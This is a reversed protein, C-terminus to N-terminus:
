CPSPLRISKMTTGGPALGSTYDCRGFFWRRPCGERGHAASRAAIGNLRPRAQRTAHRGRRDLAPPPWPRRCARRNRRAPFSRSTSAPSDASPSTSAAVKNNPTGANCGTIFAHSSRCSADRAQQIPLVRGRLHPGQMRLPGHRAAVFAADGAAPWRARGARPGSGAPGGATACARRWCGATSSRRARACSVRSM